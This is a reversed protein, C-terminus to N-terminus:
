RIRLAFLDSLPCSYVASCLYAIDLRTRSPLSFIVRKSGCTVIAVKAAAKGLFRRSPLLRMWDFWLQSWLSTTCLHHARCLTVFYM